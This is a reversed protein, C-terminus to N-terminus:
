IVGQRCCLRVADARSCSLSQNLSCSGRLFRSVCVEAHKCGHFVISLEHVPCMHHDGESNVSRMEGAAYKAVADSQFAVTGM